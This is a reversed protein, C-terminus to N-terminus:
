AHVGHLRRLLWLLSMMVRRWFQYEIAAVIWILVVLLLLIWLQQFRNTGLLLVLTLGALLWSINKPNIQMAPIISESLIVISNRMGAPTSPAMPM